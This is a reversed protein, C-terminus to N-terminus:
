APLAGPVGPKVLAFVLEVRLGGLTPATQLSLSAAHLDAIAKVIALGLGSGSAAQGPLRVFRDLVRAREAEPIGPGSDDVRLLLQQGERLVAVDIRGPAPCYKLANDLLNRLLVRLAEDRGMVTGDDAQTLGLDIGAPAAALTDGSMEAIVERVLDALAVPQMPAGSANSAQQRALALLQEVLRAAREIGASLRQVALARAAESDARQLGQAQLQLAALPSRLEHAADAVFHTQADFAQRVRGLLLNLEGVVPRIEDPLGADSVPTLDEAQRLALQRRVRAVPALSAGVVWWALLMLVPAMVAIPAVTRLALGGAMERRIAMDQAVQIVQSPTQLSFVRYSIGEARVDSFGLVARNPLADRASSQYVRIGDASWVQLVFGVGETDRGSDDNPPAALGDPARSHLGARLSMAMQRMQVDFLQDAEARATRYASWGQALATLLIAALLSVLLRARLSGPLGIV